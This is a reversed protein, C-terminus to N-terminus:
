RSEDRKEERKAWYRALGAHNMSPRYAEEYAARAVPDDTKAHILARAAASFGDEDTGRALEALKPLTERLEDLQHQVDDRFGFHTLALREPRWAEVLDISALWLEVDIDPPPTPPLAPGGEIRVGAVDGTFATGTEEHLYAVHHKAHGPTYASRFGDITEGGQLVRVNEQPVPVVEGWLRDFDAGYIRKASSVLREPDVLHRAGQEHVCVEVDPWRQVLRGAAGAHDFHIHTLLIRRPAPRDEGRAALMTAHAVEPGPDVLVDDGVAYCCVARRAGMHEVDLARIETM